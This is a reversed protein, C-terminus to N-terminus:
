WTTQEVSVEFKLGFEAELEIATLTLWPRPAVTKGSRMVWGTELWKGYGEGGEFVGIKGENGEVVHTIKDRLNSTVVGPFDGPDSPRGLSFMNNRAIAEGRSCITELLAAGGMQAQAFVVQPTWTIKTTM